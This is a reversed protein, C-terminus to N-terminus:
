LRYGQEPCDSSDTADCRSRGNGTFVLAGIAAFLLLGVVFKFAEKDAGHFLWVLGSM